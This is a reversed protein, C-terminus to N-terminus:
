FTDQPTSSFLKKRFYIVMVFLLVAYILAHAMVAGESGFHGILFSGSIYLLVFSFAETVIFAKTMKKAFFEYGLILMCVKFVDGLLQWFFLKKMPMFEESLLILIVFDKLFFLATVGGIFVPVIGLYYSRFVRQTETNTKAVSLKPLFYVTLLTSIFMMYFASIRNIGEYFGAEEAGANDTIMNRLGVYVIPGLVATVLSMLSYSFFGKLIHLDINDKKFFFLGELKKSVLYFSFIFLSAPSIIIGLLAGEVGMQWILLASLAVGTINGWINLYIVDKYRGFGNLISVLIINGGYWPLLFALIRIVWAYEDHDNFIWRSWYGSLFFLAISVIIILILLTTLVTTLVKALKNRDKENEAVYKIIGNQLGLTAVTDVSSLFNRFNGILALGSPGIFLAIIKSAAVGGAIRVLVSITNLSTVRFLHTNLINKLSNM